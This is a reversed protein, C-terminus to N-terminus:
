KSWRAWGDTTRRARMEITESGWNILAIAGAGIGWVALGVGITAPGAWWPGGFFTMALVSLAASAITLLTVGGAICAAVALATRIM